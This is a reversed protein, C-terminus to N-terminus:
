SMPLPRGYRARIHQLTEDTMLYDTRETADNLGIVAVLPWPRKPPKLEALMADLETQPVASPAVATPTTPLTAIWLGFGALSVAILALAARILHRMSM